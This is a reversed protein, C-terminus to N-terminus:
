ERSNPVYVLSRTIDKEVEKKIDVKKGYLVDFIHNYDESTLEDIQNNRKYICISILVKAIFSDKIHVYFDLVDKIGKYSYYSKDFSHWRLNYIFIQKFKSFACTSTYKMNPFWINGHLYDFYNIVGKEDTPHGTLCEMETLNTRDYGRELPISILDKSRAYNLRYWLKYDNIFQGNYEQFPELTKDNGILFYLYPKLSVSDRDGDQAVAGITLINYESEKEFQYLQKIVEALEKANLKGYDNLPFKDSIYTYYKLEELSPYREYLVFEKNTKKDFFEQYCNSMEKKKKNMESQYTKIMDEAEKKRQELVEKEKKLDLFKSM